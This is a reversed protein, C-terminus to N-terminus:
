DVIETATATITATQVGEFDTDSPVVLRFDIKIDDKIDDAYFINCIRKGSGTTTVDIFVTDNIDVCSGAAMEAIKWKFSPSSGGVLEEANVSSKLDLEVDETGTNELVLEGSNSIWTGNVVTGADSDLVAYESGSDVAGAGWDLTLTTFSMDVTETIGMTVIGGVSGGSGIPGPPHEPPVACEGYDKPCSVCDEGPDVSGDGCYPGQVVGFGSFSGVSVELYDGSANFTTSSTVDVWSGDCTDGVFDYDDCKYVELYSENTYGLDGYQIKVVADSFNFDNVVSYTVL